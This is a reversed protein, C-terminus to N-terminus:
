RASLEQEIEAAEEASICGHVSTGMRQVLGRVIGELRDMRSRISLSQSELDEAKAGEGVNVNEIVVPDNSTGGDLDEASVTGVDLGTNEQPTDM